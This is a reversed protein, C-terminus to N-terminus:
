HQNHGSSKRIQTDDAYTSLKSLNKTTPKTGKKPTSGACFRVFYLLFLLFMAIICHIHSRLVFTMSRGVKIKAGKNAGKINAPSGLWKGRNVISQEEVYALDNM